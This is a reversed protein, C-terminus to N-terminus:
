ERQLALALVLHATEALAADLPKDIEERAEHLLWAASVLWAAAAAAVVTAFLRNRLSWGRRAGAATM